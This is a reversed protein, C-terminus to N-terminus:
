SFKVFPAILNLATRPMKANRLHLAPHQSKTFFRPADTQREKVGLRLRPPIRARGSLATPLTVNWDRNLDCIRTAPDADTPAALAMRDRATVSLRIIDLGKRFRFSPMEAAASKAAPAPM